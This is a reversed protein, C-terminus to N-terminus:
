RKLNEEFKKIDDEKFYHILVEDNLKDKLNFKLIYWRACKKYVIFGLIMGVIFILVLVIQFINAGVGGAPNIKFVKFFLLSAFVFLLFMILVTEIIEFVSSLLMFRFSNRKKTRFAVQEKKRREKAEEDLDKYDM